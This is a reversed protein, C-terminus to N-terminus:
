SGKVDDYNRLFSKNVPSMIIKTITSYENRRERRTYNSSIHDHSIHYSNCDQLYLHPVETCFM